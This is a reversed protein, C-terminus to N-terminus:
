GESSMTYRKKFFPERKPPQPVEKKPPPPKVIKISEDSDSMDSELVVFDAPPPAKSMNLYFHPFFSFPDRDECFIKM